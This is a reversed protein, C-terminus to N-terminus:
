GPLRSRLVDILAAQSREISAVESATAAIAAQDAPEIWGRQAIRNATIADIQGLALTTREKAAVAVSIAQQAAVWSEGQPAGAAAVLREAAAAAESFAANGARAQALLDALQAALVPDVTGQRVVSEVPVRPDIAEAARPALSPAPGGPQACAAALPVILLVAAPM